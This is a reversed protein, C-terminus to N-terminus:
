HGPSTPSAIPIDVALLLLVVSLNYAAHCFMPVRLSGTLILLWSFYIGVAFVEILGILSYGAHLAAWAASTVVAAGILRLRTQALAPFLFGRFLLEEMVPAGIAIVAIALWWAESRVLGVFIALDAVVLNPDIFWTVASAAGFMAVMVLLSIAYTRKGQRPAALAFLDWRKDGRWTAASWTLAITVVQSVALGILLQWHERPPGARQLGLGAVQASLVSIAVTMVAFALALSWPWHTHPRYAWRARSDQPEDTHDQQM